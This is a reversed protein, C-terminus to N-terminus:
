NVSTDKKLGFAVDSDRGGQDAIKLEVAARRRDIKEQRVSILFDEPYVYYVDLASARIYNFGKHPISIDAYGNFIVNDGVELNRYFCKKGQVTEFTGRPDDELCPIKVDVLPGMAVVTGQNTKTEGPEGTITKAPIIIGGETKVEDNMRERILISNNTCLPFDAPLHFEPRVYPNKNVKEKKEKM